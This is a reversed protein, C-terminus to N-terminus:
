VTLLEARPPPEILAFGIGSISELDGFRQANGGKEANNAGSLTKPSRTQQRRPRLRAKQCGVHDRTATTRPDWVHEFRTSAVQARRARRCSEGSAACALEVGSARM